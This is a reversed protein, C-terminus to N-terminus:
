NDESKIKPIHTKTLIFDYKGRYRSQAYRAFQDNEFLAFVCSGSGTMNVGLPGFSALEAYAHAVDGNLACAAGFLGNSLAKGLACKDGSKIAAVADGSTFRSGAVDDCLAYCRATSVPTKPLLLALDLPTKGDILQVKDGRGRLRAYGGYLMYGCDSGIDDAIQKIGEGDDISFLTKMANLVGAADASSGGLGAGMPINKWVTVDVGCTSYKGVFREAAKVANNDEYPLTESGLGHMEVSVRDDKERKRVTIVDSLDITTVVSDLMHYEGTKGLIDLTLNVKAYAHVKVYNM